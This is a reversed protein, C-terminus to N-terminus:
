LYGELKLLAHGVGLMCKIQDIIHSIVDNIWAQFNNLVTKKM